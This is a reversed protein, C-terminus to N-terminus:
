NQSLQKEQLLKLEKEFECEKEEQVANIIPIGKFSLLEVCDDKYSSCVVLRWNINKNKLDNINTFPTGILDNNSNKVISISCDMFDITLTLTDGSSFSFKNNNKWKEWKHNTIHSNKEGDSIAICYYINQKIKMENNNPIEKKDFYTNKHQFNNIIGIPMYTGYRYRKKIKLKVQIKQYTNSNFTNVSYICNGNFGIGKIIKIEKKNKDNIEWSAGNHGWEFGVSKMNQFPILCLSALLNFIVAIM